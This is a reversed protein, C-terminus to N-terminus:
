SLVIQLVPEELALLRRQIVASFDPTLTAELPDPVIGPTFLHALETVFLPNGRSLEFLQASVKAPLSPAGHQALVQEVERLGFNKLTLESGIVSRRLATLMRGLCRNERAKQNRCTLLLLCRTRPLLQLLHSALALSGDDAWQLDELIVLTPTDSLATVLLQSLDAIVAFQEPVGVRELPHTSTMRAAPQLLRSAGEHEQLMRARQHADHSELLALVVQLWPWYPPVAGDPDAWGRVCRVGRRGALLALEHALRTKGVGAPGVVACARGGASGAAALQELLTQLEAARGVLCTPRGLPGPPLAADTDLVSLEAVFQYGRGRATRIIPSSGAEDGL